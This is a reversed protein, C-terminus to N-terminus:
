KDPSSSPFSRTSPPSHTLLRLSRLASIQLSFFALSFTFHLCVVSSRADEHFCIESLRASSNVIVLLHCFYFKWSFMVNVMQSVDSVRGRHRLQGVPPFSLKNPATAAFMPVEYELMGSDGSMSGTTM